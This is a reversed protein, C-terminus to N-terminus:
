ASRLDSGAGVVCHLSRESEAVSEVRTQVASAARGSCRSPEQTQNILGSFIGVSGTDSQDPLYRCVHMTYVDAATLDPMRMGAM